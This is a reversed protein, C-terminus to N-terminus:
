FQPVGKRELNAHSCQLADGGDTFEQHCPISLRPDLRSRSTSMSALVIYQVRTRVRTAPDNGAGVQM